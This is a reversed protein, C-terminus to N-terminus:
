LVSVIFAALSGLFGAGLFCSVKRSRKLKKETKKITANLEAEKKTYLSDLQFSYQVAETLLRIEEKQLSDTKVLREHDNLTLNIIKVQESTMVVLSDGLMRPYTVQCFM